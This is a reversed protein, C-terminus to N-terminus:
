GTSFSPSGVLKSEVHMRAAQHLSVKRQLHRPASGRLWTALCPDTSARTNTLIKVIKTRVLTQGYRWHGEPRQHPSCGQRLHHDVRRGKKAVVTRRVRQKWSGRGRQRGFRGCGGVRAPPARSFRTPPFSTPELVLTALSEPREKGNRAAEGM